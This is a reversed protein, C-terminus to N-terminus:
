EITIAVAVDSAVLEAVTEADKVCTTIVIAVNIQESGEVQVRVALGRPLLPVKSEIHNVGIVVAEERSLLEVGNRASVAIVSDIRAKTGLPPRQAKHTVAETGLTQPRPARKTAESGKPLPRKATEQAREPPM